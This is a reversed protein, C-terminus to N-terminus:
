SALLGESGLVINGLEAGQTRKLTQAPECFDFVAMVAAYLLGRQTVRSLTGL